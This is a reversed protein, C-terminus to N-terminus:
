EWSRPGAILALVQELAKLFQQTTGNGELVVYVNGNYPPDPEVLINMRIKPGPKMGILNGVTDLFWLAWRRNVRLTLYPERTEYDGHGQCSSVTVVGHYANFKKLFPLMKLDVHGQVLEEEFDLLLQKKDKPTLWKTKPTM